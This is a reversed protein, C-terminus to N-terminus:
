RTSAIVDIIDFNEDFKFDIKIDFTLSFISTVDIIQGFNSTLKKTMKDDDQRRSSMLKIDFNEDFTVDIKIDFTLSFISTVDIIQGFNSTFRQHFTHVNQLSYQDLM